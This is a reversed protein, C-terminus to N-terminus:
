NNKIRFTFYKQTVYSVAIIIITCVLQSIYPEIKLMDVFLKLLLYNLGLNFFFSLLYRIFQVRGRLYSETFVIYRNLMFGVMFTTTGSVFLAAMHPKFVLPGVSINENAFVFYCLFNYLLLGLVTNASGCAAYRYTVVPMFKRFPPYFFDLTATIINKM